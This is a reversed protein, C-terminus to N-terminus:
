VIDVDYLSRWENAILLTTRAEADIRLAHVPLPRSWSFSVDCGSGWCLFGSHNPGTVHSTRRVRARMQPHLIVLQNESVAIIPAASATKM